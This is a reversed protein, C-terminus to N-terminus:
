PKQYMKVSQKSSPNDGDTNEDTHSFAWKLAIM